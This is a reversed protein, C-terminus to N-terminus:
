VKFAVNYLAMTSGCVAVWYLSLTCQGKLVQGAKGGLSGMEVRPSKIIVHVNEQQKLM